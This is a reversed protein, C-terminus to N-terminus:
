LLDNDYLFKRGKETLQYKTFLRDLFSSILRENKLLDLFYKAKQNSIKLIQEIENPYLSAYQAFLKLIDFCENPLDSTQFPNKTQLLSKLRKIEEDKEQLLERNELIERKANFLVDHTEILSEQLKRIEIRLESQQVESDLNGALKKIEYGTKLSALATTIGTIIDM